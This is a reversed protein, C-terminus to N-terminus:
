RSCRTTRARGWTRERTCRRVAGRGCSPGTPPLPLSPPLDGLAFVLQGSTCARRGLVGQALVAGGGGVAGGGAATGAKAARGGVKTGLQRIIIGGAGVAQGGFVKVGRRKSISDRGNKSSGSGKKHAAEITLPAMPPASFSCRGPHPLLAGAPRRPCVTGFFSSTFMGQM